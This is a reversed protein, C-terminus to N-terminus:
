LGLVEKALPITLPRKQLLSAHDLAAIAQMFDPVRRPLRNVLFRVLDQGIRVQRELAMQALIAALDEEDPPQLLLVPGWMLRSRLDERVDALNGPQERGAFLLRVGAARMGNYLYLVAEQLSASTNLRDMADVAVLRCGEFRSLFGALMAESVEESGQQEVEEKRDSRGGELHHDLGALDLYLAAHPGYQDRVQRVTAQLLHTKGTGAEGCLTLGAFPPVHSIEGAEGFSRVAEVAMRNGRGVVLNAFTLVPDLPLDLLLQQPQDDHLNM